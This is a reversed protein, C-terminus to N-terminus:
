RMGFLFFQACLISSFFMRLFVPSFESYLHRRIAFELFCIACILEVWVSLRMLFQIKCTLVFVVNKVEFITRFAFSVALLFISLMYKLAFSSCRCLPSRSRVICSLNMRRFGSYVLLHQCFSIFRLLSLWAQTNKEERREMWSLYGNRFYRRRITRRVCDSGSMFSASIESDDSCVDCFEALTAVADLNSVNVFFSNLRVDDFADDFSLLPTSLGFFTDLEDDIVHISFKHFFIFHWYESKVIRGASRVGGSRAIRSRAYVDHWSHASLDAFRYLIIACKSVIPQRESLFQNKITSVVTRVLRRIVHIGNNSSQTARSSSDGNLEAFSTIISNSPENCCGYM